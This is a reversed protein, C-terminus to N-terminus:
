EFSFWNLAWLSKQSFDNFIPSVIFNVWTRWPKTPNLSFSPSLSLLHPSSSSMNWLYNVNKSGNSWFSRRQTRYSFDTHLMSMCLLFRISNSYYKLNSNITKWSSFKSNNCNFNIYCNLHNISYVFYIAILIIINSEKIM